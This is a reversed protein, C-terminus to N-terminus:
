HHIRLDQTKIREQRWDGSYSLNVLYPWDLNDSELPPMQHSNITCTKIDIIKFSSKYKYFGQHQYYKSWSSSKQGQSRMFTESCGNVQDFFIKISWTISKLIFMDLYIKISVLGVSILFLDTINPIFLKREMSKPM